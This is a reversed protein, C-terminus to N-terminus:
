DKGNWISKIEWIDLTTVKAKGGESFIEIGTGSPDPFILASVVAIGDNGFVEISSEDVFLRLKIKGTANNLPARFEGAFSTNFDTKGSNRRDLVIESTAKDFYVTTKQNKGVCLNVGAKTSKTLDFEIILEYTNKAPKFGIVAM